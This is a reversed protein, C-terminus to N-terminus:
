QQAPSTLDVSYRERLSPLLETAIARVVAFDPRSPWLPMFDQVGVAGYEEVMREFALTSQLPTSDLGVSWRIRSPDRGAAMAARNVIAGSALFDSPAGQGLNWNDAYRGVLELMRRRKAAVLIPPYPQQVPPPAFPADQLRYYRGAFTPHNRTWLLRLIELGEAVRDVREAASPFDIGYATHEAVDWGPGIGLEFRGNSLHDLTTAQKALLVPHRFTAASVLVGIRLRRTRAALAALLTWAELCAGEPDSRVPLLHDYVWATDFGLEELLDWTEALESWTRHQQATLAGLRLPFHSM